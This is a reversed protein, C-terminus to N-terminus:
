KKILEFPDEGLNANFYFDKLTFEYRVENSTSTTREYNVKYTHPLTFLSEKRFDSFDETLTEKLGSQRSSTDPSSGLNAGAEISYVTRIHQFTTADFYLKITMGFGKKPEFSIAYADIGNVKKKGDFDVKAKSNALDSIAWINFLAGGFLGDKVIRPNNFLFLGLASRQNQSTNAVKYDKENWIIREFQYNPNNTSDFTIGFLRKAGEAAFATTGVYQVDKRLPITFKVEGMIATNKIKARDEATGISDLNKKIVEEATMKQASASFVFSTLFLAILIINKMIKRRSINLM